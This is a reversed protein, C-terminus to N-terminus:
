ADTDQVLQLRLPLSGADLHKRWDVALEFEHVARDAFNCELPGQRMSGVFLYFKMPEGRTGGGLKLSVSGNQSDDRARGASRKPNRASGAWAEGPSFQLRLDSSGGLQLPPSVLTFGASVRLRSFIKQIRWEASASGESAATEQLPQSPQPMASSPHPLGPPPRFAPPSLGPPPPVLCSPAPLGSASLLPAVRPSSSASSSATEWSLPSPPVLDDLRLCSDGESLEALAPPRCPAPLPVRRPSSAASTSASAGTELHVRQAEAFCRLWQASLMAAPVAAAPAAGAISPAPMSTPAIALDMPLGAGAFERPDAFPAM